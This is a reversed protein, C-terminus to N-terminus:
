LVSSVTLLAQCLLKLHKAKAQDLEVPIHLKPLMQCLVKKDDAPLLTLDHSVVLRQAEGTMSVDARVGPDLAVPFKKNLLAKLIEM